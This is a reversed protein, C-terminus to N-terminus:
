ETEDGYLRIDALLEGMAGAALYVLMDEGAPLTKTKVYPVGEKTYIIQLTDM